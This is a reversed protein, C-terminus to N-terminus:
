EAQIAEREAREDAQAQALRATAIEVLQRVYKHSMNRAKVLHNGTLNRGSLIWRAYYSGLRADAGNFGIGNSHKTDGASQEDATQRQYIAVIAREVAKDNMTLLWRIYDPDNKAKSM